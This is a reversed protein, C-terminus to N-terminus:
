TVKENEINTIRELEILQDKINNIHVIVKSLYVSADKRNLIKVHDLAQYILLRIGAALKTEDCRFALALQTDNIDRKYDAVINEMNEIVISALGLYEIIAKISTDLDNKMKM